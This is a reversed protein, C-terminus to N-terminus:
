LNIGEDEDEDSGIDQKGDQETGTDPREKNVDSTKPEESLRKASPIRSYGEPTEYTVPQEKEEKQEVKQERKPKVSKILHEILAVLIGLWVYTILGTIIPAAVAAYPTLKGHKRFRYGAWLSLAILILWLIDCIIWSGVKIMLGACGTRLKFPLNILPANFESENASGIIPTYNAFVSSLMDSIDLGAGETPRPKPPKTVNTENTLTENTTENTTINESPTVVVCVGTTTNCVSNCCDSDSSCPDGPYSWHGCVGETEGEPICCTAGGCCDEDSYCNWDTSGSPICCSDDECLLGPCCDDTVNCGATPTGCMSVGCSKTIPGSCLEDTDPPAYTYTFYYNVIEGPVPPIRSLNLWANGSEDTTNAYGSDYLTSGVEVYYTYIRVGEIPEDYYTCSMIISPSYCVDQGEAFDCTLASCNFPEIPTPCTFDDFDIEYNLNDCPGYGGAEDVEIRYTGNQDFYIPVEGSSNTLQWYYPESEGNHYLSINWDEAAGIDWCSSGRCKKRTVKAVGIIIPNGDEIVCDGATIQLDCTYWYHDGDPPCFNYTKTVTYEPSTYTGTDNTYWSYVVCSWNAPGGTADYTVYSTSGNIGSVNEELVLRDPDPTSSNYLRFTLNLENYVSSYPVASCNVTYGYSSLDTSRPICSPSITLTPGSYIDPELCAEYSTNLPTWNDTIVPSPVCAANDLETVTYVTIFIAFLLIFFVQKNKRLSNKRFRYRTSFM